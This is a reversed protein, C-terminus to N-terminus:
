SVSLRRLPAAITLAGGSSEIVSAFDPDTAVVAHDRYVGIAHGTRDFVYSAAGTKREEIAARLVAYKPTSPDISQLMADAEEIRGTAAYAAARSVVQTADVLPFPLWSWRRAIAMAEADDGRRWANRAEVIPLCVAGGM